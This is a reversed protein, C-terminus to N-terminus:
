KNTVTFGLRHFVSHYTKKKGRFKNTSIGCAQSLIYKCPYLRDNYHLAYRYTGKDLWNDYMNSDPYDQDFRDIVKIIDPRTLSVGKFTISM